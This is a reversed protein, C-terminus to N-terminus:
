NKLARWANMGGRMNVANFGHQRLFHTANLSRSGSACYVVIERDRYKELEPLRQSLEHLPVNISGSLHGSRNEGVTRVDLLVPKSESNLKAAVERAAYHRVQQRLWLQRVVIFVFLALLAIGLFNM